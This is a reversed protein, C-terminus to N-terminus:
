KLGEAAKQREAQSREVEKLLDNVEKLLDQTDKNAPTEVPKVPPKMARGLRFGLTFGIIFILVGAAVELWHKKLWLLVM